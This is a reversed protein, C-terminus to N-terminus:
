FAIVLGALAEGQFFYQDDYRTCRDRRGRECFADSNDDVLTSIALAEFRVGLHNNFMVKVGGNLAISPRTEESLDSPAPSFQTAGVSAGIFPRVQGVLWQYQVGVHYYNVDLDFLLTDDDFFGGDQKLESEQHSYFFELSFSRSLPVDLILGYSSGDNVELDVFVDGFEDVFDGGFRAGAFPTLEVSQAQAAPASALATAAALAALCLVHTTTNRLPNM